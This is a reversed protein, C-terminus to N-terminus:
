SKSEETEAEWLVPIIFILQWKLIIIGTKSVLSARKYGVGYRQM